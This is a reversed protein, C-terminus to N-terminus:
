ASPNTNQSMRRRAAMGRAETCAHAKGSLIALYSFQEEAIAGPPEEASPREGSSALTGIALRSLPSYGVELCYLDLLTKASPM